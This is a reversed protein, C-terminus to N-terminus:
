AKGRHIIQYKASTRNKEKLARSMKLDTPNDAKPKPKSPIGLKRKVSAPINQLDQALVAPEDAKIEQEPVEEQIEELLNKQYEDFSFPEPNPKFELEEQPALEELKKKSKKKTPKEVMQLSDEDLDLSLKALNDLANDLNLTDESDDKLIESEDLLNDLEDLKM